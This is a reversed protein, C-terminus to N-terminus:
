GGGGKMYLGFATVAASVAGSVGAAFGLRRANGTELARIRQDHDEQRKGVGEMLTVLADIKGELRGFDRADINSM